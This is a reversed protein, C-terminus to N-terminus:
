RLFVEKRALRHRPPRSCRRRAPSRGDIGEAEGEFNLILRHRLAPLAIAKLDDVSVNFRGSPLARVKAGLVLAQAAARARGTASSAGRRHGPAESGSPIPPWCSAHRRSGARPLRDPGRAGARPRRAGAAGTMVRECTSPACTAHHSRHDREAGRAGSLAGAAQLPVPRAASGAAPLHGGDRDPEPHGARLLAAPAPPTVGAVTSAARRCAGRAARVADQAHGPQGRRRAPHARLDPGRQFQFHQRGDADEVIINTGIIDAPM